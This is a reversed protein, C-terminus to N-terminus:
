DAVSTYVVDFCELLVVPFVSDSVPKSM